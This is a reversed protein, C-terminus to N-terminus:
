LYLEKMRLPHEEQFRMLNHALCGGMCTGDERFTCDDCEEFIGAAEIRIKSHLERYYEHMDRVSNFDFVSKKHFTSLPFCSWVSMDPGIDIVPGCGFDYKVGMNRSLWALQKDNFLCMPFGCDLGPKIRLREFFPIYSFLRDIVLSIDHLSIHKNKRGVIPHAMGLRISRHLGYANIYRFIFELDFDTRYINFGPIVMEGFAQLFRKVCEVEALPSKTKEPDNLNCVFSLKECPIHRFLSFAEALKSDPMIGSTFVTIDFGRELLYLVMDNFHPHLTPEGGLLPLRREGSKEFLDALYILNEWTLIDDPSTESMHKEAFCYPCSRVCRQTLLINPM